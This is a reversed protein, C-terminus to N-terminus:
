PEDHNPKENPLQFPMFCINGNVIAMENCLTIKTEIVMPAKWITETKFTLGTNADQIYDVVSAPGHEGRLAQIAKPIDVTYAKIESESLM